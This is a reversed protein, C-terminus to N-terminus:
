SATALSYQQSGSTEVNAYQEQIPAGLEKYLHRFRDTSQRLTYNKRARTLAAAALKRRRDFGATGDLLETIADALSEPDNPKVLLGTGGLLESVGGVDTAVVPCGSFMAEIVSYPMAESISPLCFVDPTRYASAPDETHGVEIVEQLGHEAIFGMCDRFYDGQAPEGLIRFKVRPVRQRVRLASRLLVDIGKLPMIRSMTLVVPDGRREHNQPSFVDEDVGNPVIRIKHPDAGLRIQWKRNFECLSTVADAFQYNMRIVSENLALLFSRCAPSYSSQGLSIHLERLYLGHESLLFRSGHLLKQIVGPIGAFGSMSAHTIDARPFPVSLVAMCRQLWRMCCTAEDLNLRKRKDQWGSCVRLFTNWAEPSTLSRAYDYDGFYKYLRLMACALEGSATGPALLARLATEFPELFREKILAADTRVKRRYTESFLAEEAGPEETGWLPLLRTGIVNDPIPFVPQVSPSATIALLHFDIEPLGRILKDCWVSVGGTHCPYTGETMLLISPTEM